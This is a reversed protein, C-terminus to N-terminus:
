QLEFRRYMSTSMCSPPTDAHERALSKGHLASTTEACPYALNSVADRKRTCMTAGGDTGCRCGGCSRSWGHPQLRRCGLARRSHQHRRMHFALDKPASSAGHTQRRCIPQPPTTWQHGSVQPRVQYRLRSPVLLGGAAWSAPGASGLLAQTRMAVWLHLLLAGCVQM